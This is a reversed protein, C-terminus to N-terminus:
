FEDTLWMPADDFMEEVSHEFVRRVGFGVQM